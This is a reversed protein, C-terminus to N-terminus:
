GGQSNTPAPAAKEQVFAGAGDGMKRRGHIVDRQGPGATESHLEPTLGYCACGLRVGGRAPVNAPLSLM